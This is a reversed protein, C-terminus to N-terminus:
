SNETKDKGETVVFKQLREIAATLTLERLVPDNPPMDSSITEILGPASLPLGNELRIMVAEALVYRWLSPDGNEVIGRARNMRDTLDSFKNKKTDM